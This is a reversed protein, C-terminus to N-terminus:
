PAPVAQGKEALSLRVLREFRRTPHAGELRYGDIIFGPTAQIGFSQAVALDREIADDHRPDGLGAAFATADLGLESAYKELTARDLREPPKARTGLMRRAMQWFATDGGQARAQEAARAALVANRHFPLPYHRWAVRVRGPYTELLEDLTPMVSSCFPCEFDSFIHVTVPADPAGLVPTSTSVEPTGVKQLAPPPSAERQLTEYLADRPVGAKLLRSTVVLQEQTLQEFERYPQAGSLPIGNIFFTPTGRVELDIADDGDRVLVPHNGGQAMARSIREPDLEFRRVVDDFVDDDLREVALMMDLAQFFAADGRQERVEITLLAAPVAARHFGLPHHKVVWRVDGPYEALLREITPHAYRCYACELDLFEVITVPAGAAGKGPAGEVPVRLAAPRETPPPASEAPPSGPLPECAAALLLLISLLWRMFGAITRPELGNPWRVLHGGEDAGRFRGLSAFM